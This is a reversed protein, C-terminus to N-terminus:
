VPARGRAGAECAHLRVDTTCTGPGLQQVQRALGPRCTSRRPGKHAALRSGILPVPRPLRTRAGRSSEARSNVQSAAWESCHGLEPQHDGAITRAPGYALAHTHSPPPPPQQPAWANQIQRRGARETGATSIGRRRRPWFWRRCSFPARLDILTICLLRGSPFNVLRMHCKNGRVRNRASSPALCRSSSGAIAVAAGKSSALLLRRVCLGVVVLRRRDRRNRGSSDSAGRVQVALAIIIEDAWANWRHMRIHTRTNPITSPRQGKWLDSWKFNVCVRVCLDALSRVCEVPAEDPAVAVPSECPNTGDQLSPRCCSSARVRTSISLHEQSARARGDTRRDTQTGCSFPRAHEIFLSQALKM